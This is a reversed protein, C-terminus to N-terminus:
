HLNPISPASFSRALEVARMRLRYIPPASEVLWCVLHYIHDILTAFPEDISPGFFTPTLPAKGYLEHSSYRGFADMVFNPLMRIFKQVYISTRFKPPLQDDCRVVFRICDSSDSSIDSDTDSSSSSTSESESSFLDELKTPRPPMIFVCGDQATAESRSESASSRTSDPQSQASIGVNSESTDSLPRGTRSESLTRSEIRVSFHNFISADFCIKRATNAIVTSSVTDNQNESIFMLYIEGRPLTPESEPELEANQQCRRELEDIIFDNFHKGM